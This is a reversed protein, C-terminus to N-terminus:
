EFGPERIAALSRGVYSVIPFLSLCFDDLGLGKKDTFFWDPMVFNHNEFRKAWAGECELVIAYPLYRQFVEQNNVDFPFPEPNSLFKRFALWNSLVEQGIITRIPLRGATISIVLSSIMMGVWLFIAFPPETFRILSLAFGAASILFFLIGALRYKLLSRQPDVKFYGLRTALSYIGATVMSMKKSYFHNNLRKEFDQRSASLNEKFIKSLLIKEFGLLRRDFRGKGFSFQTENDIIVIDGREALDILSSAIERPGVKQNYLAGVVAPPIAMPPQATEKEPLDIKQRKHQYVLMFFMTLLTFAPLAIALWLWFSNKTKKAETAVKDIINPTITGTPLKAVITITAYSSVNNITYLVTNSNKVSIQSEGAGHQSIVEAKIDNANPKPSVLTVNVINYSIKPDDLIKLRLENQALDYKQDIEKNNVLVKGDEKIEVATTLIGSSYQSNSAAKDASYNTLSLFNYSFYGIAFISLFFVLKRKNISFLSGKIHKRRAISM